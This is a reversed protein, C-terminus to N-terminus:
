NNANPNDEESQANEIIINNPNEISEINGEEVKDLNDLVVQVAHRIKKRKTIDLGGTDEVTVSSSNDVIFFNQLKPNGIVSMVMDNTDKILSSIFKTYEMIRDTRLNTVDDEIRNFLEDELKNLTDLLKDIRNLRNKAQILMGARVKNEVVKFERLTLDDIYFSDEMMKSITIDRNVSPVMQNEVPKDVTEVIETVIEEVIEETKNEKEVKETSANEKDENQNEQIDQKNLEPLGLEKIFDSLYQGSKLVIKAHNQIQNLDVIWRNWNNTILNVFNNNNGRSKYRDIFEEKLSIDPYVLLYDLKVADLCKRIVEHQSILVVKYESNAKKIAELYNIPYRPNQIRTNDGKTSETNGNEIWKYNGSELDIVDEKYMQALTTKGVGAFASVIM